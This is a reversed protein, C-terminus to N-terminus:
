IKSKRFLYKPILINNNLKCENTNVDRQINSNENQM